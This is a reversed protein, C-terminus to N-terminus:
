TIRCVPEQRIKPFYRYKYQGTHCHLSCSIDEEEKFALELAGELDGPQPINQQIAAIYDLDAYWQPTILHCVPVLAVRYLMQDPYHRKFTPRSKVEQEYHQLQAPLSRTTPLGCNERHKPPKKSQRHAENWLKYIEDLSSPLGVINDSNLVICAELQSQFGILAAITHTSETISSAVPQAVPAIQIILFDIKTSLYAECQM